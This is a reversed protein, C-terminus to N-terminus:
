AKQEGKSINGDYYVATLNVISPDIEVLDINDYRFGVSFLFPTTDELKDTVAPTTDNPQYVGIQM